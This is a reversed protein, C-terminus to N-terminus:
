SIEGPSALLIRPVPLYFGLCHVIRSDMSILSEFTKFLLHGTKACNQDFYSLELASQNFVRCFKLSFYEWWMNTWFSATIPLFCTGPAQSVEFEDCLCIVEHCSFFRLIIKKVPTLFMTFIPDSIYLYKDDNKKMTCFIQHQKLALTWSTGM